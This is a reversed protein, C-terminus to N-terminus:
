DKLNIKKHFTNYTADNIPNVQGNEDTMKLHIRGGNSHFFNGKHLFIWENDPFIYLTAIIEGNLHNVFHYERSLNILSFFKSKSDNHFRPLTLFDNVNTNSQNEQKLIENVNLVSSGSLTSYDISISADFFSNIEKEIALTRNNIVLVRNGTIVGFSKGDQAPFILLPMDHCEDCNPFKKPITIHNLESLNNLNYQHITRQTDITVISNGVINTFLFKQVSKTNVFKKNRMDFIGLATNTSLIIKENDVFHLNVNKKNAFFCDEIKVSELVKVPNLSWHTLTNNAYTYFTEGDPSLTASPAIAERTDVYPV